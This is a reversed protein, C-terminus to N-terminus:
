DSRLVDIPDVSLARRAPTLAALTSALAIVASAAVIALPNLAGLSSFRARLASAAVISLPFGTALGAAAIVLGHRVVLWVMSRRSAGLTVRIGLERRRQAVAIALAGYLGIISLGLAAAGFGSLVSAGTREVFTAGGIHDALSRPQLALLDVHVLRLVRRVPEAVTLPKGATRVFIAFVLEPWQLIPFYAVAQPSETLAGYKGDAVVGVITAWGHGADIRHGIATAGPYFRRSFTENVLAVPLSGRRDTPAFDRGAVLATRMLGLFGPGTSMRIASM